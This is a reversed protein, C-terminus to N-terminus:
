SYLARGNSRVVFPIMTSEHDILDNTRNKVAEVARARLAVKAFFEDYSVKHAVSVSVRWNLKFLLAIAKPVDNYALRDDQNAVYLGPIAECTYISWGDRFSRRVAIDAALADMNYGKSASRERELAAPDYGLDFQNPL